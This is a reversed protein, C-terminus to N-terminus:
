LILSVMEAVLPARKVNKVFDADDSKGINVVQTNLVILRDMKEWFEPTEVEPCAPFIRQTTRNTEM